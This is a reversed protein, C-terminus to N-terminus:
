NKHWLREIPGEESALCVFDQGPKGEVGIYRGGVIRIKKIRLVLM